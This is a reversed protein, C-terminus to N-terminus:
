YRRRRQRSLVFRFRMFTLSCVTMYGAVDTKKGKFTKIELLSSCSITADAINKVFDHKLADTEEYAAEAYVAAEKFLEIKAKELELLPKYRYSCLDSRVWKVLSSCSSGM